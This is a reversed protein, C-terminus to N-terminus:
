LLILMGHCSSFILNKKNGIYGYLTLILMYCIVKMWVSLFAEFKGHIVLDADEFHRSCVYAKDPNFSSDERNIIAIIRQRWANKQADNSVKPLRM